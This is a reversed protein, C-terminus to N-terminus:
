SKRNCEVNTDVDCQHVEPNFLMGEPCHSVSAVGTHCIVFKECTEPHEFFHLGEDPCAFCEEIPSQYCAQLAEIFRFGPPCVQPFAEGQYCTFYKHCQRPDDVFHTETPHCDVEPLDQGTSGVVLAAVLILLRM